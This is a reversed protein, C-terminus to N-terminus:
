EKEEKELRATKEETFYRMIGEYISAAIKEQYGDQLLLEREEHNSLFGVEVLAGPKKANKLLYINNIPKANRNTNDLNDKIEEQIFEAIVKNELYRTSYFTQAGRWRSSPMANLHISIYLEADSDNIMKVRRRLDESKRRSLGRTDEDALDFDEERTMLVFAGQQQLYDRLKLAISLAIEKEVAEGHEAGGDPGGHGPDLYIIRGSLPLNWSSIPMFQFYQNQIAFIIIGILFISSFFLWTRNM